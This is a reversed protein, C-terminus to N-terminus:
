INAASKFKTYQQGVMRNDQLYSGKNSARENIHMNEKNYSEIKRDIYSAITGPLYKKIAERDGKNGSTDKELKEKEQRLM